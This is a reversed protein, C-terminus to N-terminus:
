RLLEHLNSVIKQWFVLIVLETPEPTPPSTRGSYEEGGQDHYEKPLNTDAEAPNFQRQDRRLGPRDDMFIFLFLPGQTPLGSLLLVAWGPPGPLGLM